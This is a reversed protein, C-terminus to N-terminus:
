SGYASRSLNMFVRCRFLSIIKVVANGAFEDLEIGPLEFPSSVVVDLLSGQIKWEDLDLPQSIVDNLYNSVTLM